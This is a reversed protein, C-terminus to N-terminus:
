DSYDIIRNMDRLNFVLIRCFCDVLFCNPHSHKGLSIYYFLMAETREKHKTAIKLIVNPQKTESKLPNAIFFCANNNMNNM